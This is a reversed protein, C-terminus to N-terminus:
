ANLTFEATLACREIWRFRSRPYLFTWAGIAFREAPLNSGIIIVSPLVIPAFETQGHVLEDMLLPLIYEVTIASPFKALSSNLQNFFTEKQIPDKIAKEELFNLSRIM